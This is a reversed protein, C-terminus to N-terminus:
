GSGRCRPTQGTRPSTPPTTITKPAETPASRARSAVEPRPLSSVTSSLVAATCATSSATSHSASDHTSGRGAIGHVASTGPDSRNAAPNRSNLRVTLSYKTGRAARAEATYPDRPTASTSSTESNQEAPQRHRGGLEVGGQELPSRV